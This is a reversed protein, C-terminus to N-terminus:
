RGIRIESTDSVADGATVYLSMRRSVVKGTWSYTGSAGITAKTKQAVYRSKRKTLDKIWVTVATGSTLGLSTGTLGLRDKRVRVQVEITPYPEDGTLLGQAEGQTTAIAVRDRDPSLGLAVGNGPAPTLPSLAGLRGQASRAIALLGAEQSGVPVALGASVYVQRYGAAIEVATSGPLTFDLPISQLARGDLVDILDISTKPASPDSADIVAAYLSRGSPDLALGAFNRAAPDNAIVLSGQGVLDVWLLVGSDTAVYAGVGDPTVAMTTPRFDGTDVVASVEYNGSSVGSFEIIRGDLSAAYLRDSRPLYVLDDGGLVGLPVFSVGGGTVDIVSLSPSDQCVAWATTGAPNIAVDSPRCNVSVLRVDGDTGIIAVSGPNFLAAAIVGTDAVAIATPPELLTVDVYPAPTAAASVSTSLALGAAVLAASVLGVTTIASGRHGRRVRARM